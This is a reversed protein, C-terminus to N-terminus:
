KWFVEAFDRSIVRYSPHYTQQYSTSHHVAPFNLQEMEKFFSDVESYKLPFKDNRAYELTRALLERLEATDPISSETTKMMAEYLEEFNGKRAKYSAINIRVMRGDPSVPEIIPFVKNPEAQRYEEELYIKASVPDAIFHGSGMAGQYLLKYLDEAQMAPYTRFNYILLTLLDNKRSTNKPRLVAYGTILIAVAAAAYILISLKKKLPNM